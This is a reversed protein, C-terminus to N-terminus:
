DPRSLTTLIKVTTPKGAGNPGVRGFVTGTPVAFGLGDLACVGRPYTKVLGRAEIADASRM